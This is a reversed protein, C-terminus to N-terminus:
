RREDTSESSPTEVYCWSQPPFDILRPPITTTNTFRMARITKPEKYERVDGIQWGYVPKGSGYAEVRDESLCAAKIAHTFFRPHGAFQAPFDMMWCFGTCIFEGVVLGRGGFVIKGAEDEWPDNPSGKTEYVYVLFPTQIRSKVAFNKRAEIIKQHAFIQRVPGPHISMLVAIM